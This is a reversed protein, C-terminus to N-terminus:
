ATVSSAIAAPIIAPDPSYEVTHPATTNGCEIVAGGWGHQGPQTARNRGAGRLRVFRTRGRHSRANTERYQRRQAAYNGTTEDHHKGRCWGEAVALRGTGPAAPRM